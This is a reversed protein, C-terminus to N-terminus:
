HVNTSSLAPTGGDGCSALGSMDMEMGGSDDGSDIRDKVDLVLQDGQNLRLTPSEVEGEDTKYNQCYHNYGGSHVSHRTTLEAKLVGNVSNLSLADEVVTGPDPRKPCQAAPRLFAFGCIVVALLYRSAFRMASEEFM